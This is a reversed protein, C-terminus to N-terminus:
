QRDSDENLLSAIQDRVERAKREYMEARKTLEECRDIIKAQDELPPIPVLIEDFAQASVSPITTGTMNAELQALGLDSELFLKLYLPLVKSTDPRLIYLNAGAVISESESVHAVASKFPKMKGLVIDGEHVLYRAERKDLDTIYPLNKAIQGDEVKKIMLYRYPTVQDSLRDKLNAGLGRTIKTTLSSLPVGGEVSIAKLYRSPHLNWHSDELEPISIDYAHESEGKVRSVIESVDKASIKCHGHIRGGIDSADILKVTKYGHGMIALAFAAGTYPAM